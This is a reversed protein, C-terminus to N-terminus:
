RMVLGLEMRIADSGDEYYSRQVVWPHFGAQLYLRLGAPNRASVELRMHRYGRERALLVAEKVLRTAIGQGRCDSEVALSYLRAPRPLVPLLLTCYGVIRQDRQAVWSLAKARTLLYRMQRPRIRDFEFSRKEIDMLLRWDAPVAQRINLAAAM